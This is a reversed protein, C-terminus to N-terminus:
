REARRFRRGPMEEILGFIELQTLTSLLAAAELATRECLEDFGSEAACATYVTDQAETLRALIAPSPPQPGREQAPVTRRTERRGAPQPPEEGPNSLAAIRAEGAVPDLPIGYTREYDRMLRVGSVIPAAGECLLEHCGAMKQSFIDGCVAFVDRDQALAHGATLLAGSRRAAQVVVTALSIGSLLRNRVYFSHPRVGTGVPFESLILGRRAVAERLVAGSRPYPSDPGAALFGITKGGIALASEHCVSEIGRALGSVVVGGMGAIETAIKRAARRGYEDPERSGVAAIPYPETLLSRDGKAYLVLPISGIMRLRLPYEPCDPTVASFGLDEAQRLLQQAASLDPSAIARKERPSLWPDAALRRASLALIEDPKGYRELALHARATGIGFTSQMWLWQAPASM